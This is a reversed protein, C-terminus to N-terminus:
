LRDMLPETLQRRPILNPPSRHQAHETTRNRSDSQDLRERSGAILGHLRKPAERRDDRQERDHEDERPLSGVLWSGTGASDSNQRRMRASVHQRAIAGHGRLPSLAILCGFDCAGGFKTINYSNNICDRLSLRNNQLYVHAVKRVM